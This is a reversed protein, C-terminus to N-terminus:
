ASEKTLKTPRPVGPNKSARITIYKAIVTSLSLTPPSKELSYMRSGQDHSLNTSMALCMQIAIRIRAKPLVAPRIRM